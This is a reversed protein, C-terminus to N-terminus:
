DCSASRVESWEESCDTSAPNYSDPNWDSCAITKMCEGFADLQTRRCEGWYGISADVCAQATGYYTGGCEKFHDCFGELGPRVTPGSPGADGSGSGADGSSSTGADADVVTGADAGPTPDDGTEGGCAAIAGAAALAVVTGFLIRNKM